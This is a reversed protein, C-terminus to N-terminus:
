QPRRIMALARLMEARDRVEKAVSEFDLSLYPDQKAMIDVRM